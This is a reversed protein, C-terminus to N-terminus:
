RLYRGPRLKGEVTISVSLRQVPSSVEIGANRDTLSMSEAYPDISEGYMPHHHASMGPATNVELINADQESIPRTHDELFMDVGAYPLGMARVAEVAAQAISPHTEPLVSLSNGGQSMNETRAMLVMTGAAPISEPRYGQEELMERIVDPQFRRRYLNPNQRRIACAWTLLEAVTHVGNGVVHARNRRIMSLAKEETVLVRYDSGTAQKEVIFDGSDFGADVARQIGVRLEDTNTVDTTIGYGKNGSVPKVVM